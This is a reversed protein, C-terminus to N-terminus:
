FQPKPGFECAQQPMEFLTSKVALSQALDNDIVKTVDAPPWDTTEEQGKEENNHIQLHTDTLEVHACM